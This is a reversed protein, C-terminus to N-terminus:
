FEAVHCFRACSPDYSGDLLMDDHKITVLHAPLEHVIPASQTMYSASAATGDDDWLDFYSSGVPEVTPPGYLFVDGWETSFSSTTSSAEPAYPTAPVHVNHKRMNTQAHLLDGHMYLDYTARPAWSQRRVEKPFPLPREDVLGPCNTANTTTTMEALGREKRKILKIGDPRHQVFNPHSFTCVVTQTKTWKKFGFYNLQRQFSSVKNHKFYRPLITHALADPKRIQFATGKHSWCIVSKDEKELIEYLFRLFKPVGVNRKKIPSEPSSAKAKAKPTPMPAPLGGQLAFQLPPMTYTPENM